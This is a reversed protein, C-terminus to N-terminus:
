WEANPELRYVESMEELLTNLHRTHFGNRGGYVPEINKSPLKIEAADLVPQMSKLWEQQLVEEGAFVDKKMLDNEWKSKDFIGLAFPYCEKVAKLMRSRSEENATALKKMWTDAHLVHYKLEGHIKKALTAIRKENSQELLKYRCIEAHDFLFHRALSFDYEGIPLEVLHCCKFDKESREYALKDPITEGYEENLISYLARAHGIKDQAMSSFAIDEELIPGLGTWESNRHGLILADDAMKFLLDKIAKKM